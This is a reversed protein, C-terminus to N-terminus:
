SEKDEIDKNNKRDTGLEVSDNTVGYEESELKNDKKQMLM